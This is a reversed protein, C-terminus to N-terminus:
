LLNKSSYAIEWRINSRTEHNNSFKLVLMIFVYVTFSIPHAFFFRLLHKILLTPNIKLELDITETGFLEGLIEKDKKFRRSQKEHDELTTPARFLVISKKALVFKMKSKICLMYSIADEPGEKPWELSKYFMKSFARARGHCMFMNNGSRIEGYMEYKFKHSDAIVKEFFTKPLVPETLSGVLGINKDQLMPRVLENLFHDDKPLVDADLLVLIDTDAENLIRNQTKQLGLRNSNELIHIRKDKIDKALRVTNDISGDSVILVKELIFHSFQQMLLANILHAINAEENYAPIGITVTIKKSNKNM